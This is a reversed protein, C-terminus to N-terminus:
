TPRNRAFLGASRSGQQAFRERRAVKPDVLLPRYIEVRDGDSLSQTPLCAKGWIGVLPEPGAAALACHGVARLASEVTAGLPLKVTVESVEGPATCHSVTVVLWDPQEGDSSSRGSTASPAEAM